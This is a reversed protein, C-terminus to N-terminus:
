KLFISTQSSMKRFKNFAFYKQFHPYHTKFFFPKRYPDLVLESFHGLNM